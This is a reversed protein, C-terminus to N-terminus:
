NRGRRGRWKGLLPELRPFVDLVIRAVEAQQQAEKENKCFGFYHRKGDKSRSIQYKQWHNNWNYGKGRPRRQNRSQEQYTAWKCNDPSYGKKNNLREITLGKPKIGMDVYFNEFYKWRDCVTIGKGGYNRYKVDNPNNCRSIMGRWTNYTKDKTLGHTKHTELRKEQNLCGCSQTNGKLLSKGEICCFNGCSCQCFWFVEGSSGRKTSERIVYLRSFQKGTLDRKKPM